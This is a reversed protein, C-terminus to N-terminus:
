DPGANFLNAFARADRLDIDADHDFDLDACTAAASAAPGSLCGPLAAFDFLDVDHDLDRDGTRTEPVRVVRFGIQDSVLGPPAFLTRRNTELSDSTAPDNWGGGRLTRRNVSTPPAYRGQLWQHVNGTMDFLTFTNNNRSTVFAGTGAARTSGDFYGVPTSGGLNCDAPDEFPDGNCRFNADPGTITDRGFGYLTNRGTAANWAAAKYWENFDDPADLSATANNYGDDMPLRFGRCSSVLNARESDILDRGAWDTQTITTPRWAAVNAAADEIYCRQSAPLGQDLTFWNCYKVAGYWSAGTVPHTSFDLPTTVVHYTGDAFEIQGAASPSFIPVNRGDPGSGSEGVTGTNVFVDGTSTDFYLHEGRPRDPRALADNLFTVFDANTVDSRGMYFTYTPGGPQPVSGSVTSLDVDFHPGALTLRVTRDVGSGDAANEFSVSGEVTQEDGAPLILDLAETNIDVIVTASAGADLVGSTTAAGNVRLWPDEAAARWSLPVATQPNVIVYAKARPLAPGGVPASAEFGAAPAVCMAGAPQLVVEHTAVHNTLLDRVRLEIRTLGPPPEADPTLSLTVNANSRPLIALQSPQAIIWEADTEIEVPVEHFAHANALPVALTSATAPDPECGVTWADTPLDISIPDVVQLEVPLEFPKPLPGHEPDIIEVRFTTAHTGVALQVAGDGPAITVTASAGHPPVIGDHIPDDEVSLWSAGANVEYELTCNATCGNCRSVTVTAPEYSAGPSDWLTSFRVPSQTSAIDVPPEIAISVPRTASVGTFTNHLRIVAEHTGPFLLGARDSPAIVFDFTGGGPVAGRTNGDPGAVTVWPQDAAVEWPMDATSANAVTYTLDHGAFQDCYPGSLDLGILPLLSLPERITLTIQKEVTTRSMGDVFRITAVHPSQPGPPLSPSAPLTVATSAPRDIPRTQKGAPSHTHQEIASGANTAPALDYAADTLQVRLTASQGPPIRMPPPAVFELWDADVSITLDDLTYTAPNRLEFRFSDRSFPGRAPGASTLDTAADVRIPDPLIAQAVRFGVFAYAADAPATNRTDTRLAAFTQPTNFHGGRTAGMPTGDHNTLDHVWEAVNGSLDYLSYGNATDHTLTGDLLTNVGNFFGVSTPGNTPTNGSNLFNCDAPTVVDRGFGYAAGFTGDAGSRRSAAKHWENFLGAPGVGDDMPLRFGAFAVLSVADDTRPRWDAPGPGEEYIRADAPMGSTLTLWNCYKVTGYWTVGVAPHAEYAADALAFQLGDFAIRGGVAPSFLHTGGVGPGIVGVPETHIFVDGTRQDVFLFQGREDDLHGLADNLFVVFEDNRVEFRALRFVYSPGGVQTDAAPVVVMGHSTMDEHASPHPWGWGPVSLV